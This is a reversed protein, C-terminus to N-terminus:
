SPIHSPGVINGESTNVLNQSEKGQQAKQSRTQVM